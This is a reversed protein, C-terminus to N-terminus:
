VRASKTLPFRGYLQLFLFFRLYIETTEFFEFFVTFYPCFNFVYKFIVLFKRSKFINVNYSCRIDLPLRYRMDTIRHFFSCKLANTWAYEKKLTIFDKYMPSFRDVESLSDIIKGVVININGNLVKYLFTVDSLLRRKEM